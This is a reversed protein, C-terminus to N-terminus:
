NDFLVLYGQTDVIYGGGSTTVDFNFDYDLVLAESCGFVGCVEKTHGIKKNDYLLEHTEGNYTISPFFLDVTKRFYHPERRPDPWSEWELEAELYLKSKNLYIRRAGSYTLTHADIPALVEKKETFITSAFLPLSILVGVFTVLVKKM